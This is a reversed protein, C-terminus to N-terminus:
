SAPLCVTKLGALETWNGNKIGVLFSCPVSAPKGATYTLPPTIGGFTDNSVKDLGAILVSPSSTPGLHVSSAVAAFV